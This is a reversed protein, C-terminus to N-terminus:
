HGMPVSWVIQSHLSSTFGKKFRGIDYEKTSVTGFAPIEGLEFKKQGRAKASIMGEHVCVHALPLPFFDRDYVGVGYITTDAYDIFLSGSVLQSPSIYGLLLEACERKIMQYQVDWSADPRTKRGSIKLHFNKLASFSDATLNAHTIFKYEVVQKHKRILHRYSKRIDQFLEFESSKLSQVATMLLDPKGMLKLAELGLASLSQGLNNDNIKLTECNLEMGLGRLYAVALKIDQIHDLAPIAVVGSGGFGITVDCRHALILHLRGNKGRIMFSLDNFKGGFEERRYDSMLRFQLESPLERSDLSEITSFFAEPCSEFPLIASKNMLDRVGVKLLTSLVPGSIILTFCLVALVSFVM